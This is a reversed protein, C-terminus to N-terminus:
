ILYERFAFFSIPNAAMLTYFEYDDQTVAVLVM